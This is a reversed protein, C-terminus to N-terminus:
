LDILIKMKRGARLEDFAADLDHLTAHEGWGTTSYVGAAMNAIVADYDDDYVLSGVVEAEQLLLSTPNFEFPKEHIGVVVVRGRPALCPITGSIAAGVGATDFVATAGIGESMEMVAATLDTERPDIVDKAGLATIAARREPSTESVIVKEFGRAELALWHGIGIPGAGVIVSTDTGTLGSRDVAHHGVAMPEVLAGLELSVGEPLPHVQDATVVTCEALACGEASLGHFALIRCINPLGQKCPPCTGCSHTPRLAAPQGVELGTVGEGLEAVTGSFEHGM